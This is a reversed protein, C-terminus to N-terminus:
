NSVKNGSVDVTKLSKNYIVAGMLIELDGPKLQCNRIDLTQLSCQDHKFWTTIQECMKTSNTISNHSLCLEKLNNNEVLNDMFVTVDTSGISKCRLINLASNQSMSPGVCRSFYDTGLYNGSVDLCSLTQNESLMKGLSM